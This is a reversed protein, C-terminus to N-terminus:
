LGPGGLSDAEVAPVGDPIWLETVDRPADRTAVLVHTVAAPDVTPRLWYSKRWSGEVDATGDIRGIPIGRPYTGGLGSTLVLVGLQLSEHYATGNLVLRDEERFDGRVNEVMGYASGDELMASARFDTNTWDMGVASRARVERVRGVLGRASVVPAYMEVGDDSGVDLIFMSESGPTGPRIVTARLYSPSTREALGLLERLERNEASVARQTSLVGTLSDVEAQLVDIQDARMRAQALTEQTWIFPRLVTAQFLQAIRQQADGGLYVTAISAIAVVAAIVVQHGTGSKEREPAYAV